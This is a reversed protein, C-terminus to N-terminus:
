YHAHLQTADAASVHSELVNQVQYWVEQPVLPEHIGPYVAGKFRVQGRYYPNTLIRLLTSKGVPKSPRKPTPLSTLGRAELERQM